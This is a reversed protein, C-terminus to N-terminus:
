TSAKQFALVVRKEDSNKIRSIELQVEWSPTSSFHKALGRDIQEFIFELNKFDMQYVCSVKERKMEPSTVKQCLDRLADNFKNFLSYLAGKKITILELGERSPISEYEEGLLELIIKQAELSTPANSNKTEAAPILAKLLRLTAEQTNQRLAALKQVEELEDIALRGITRELDKVELPNKIINLTEFQTIKAMVWEGTAAWQLGAVTGLYKKLLSELTNLDRPADMKEPYYVIGPHKLELLGFEDLPRWANASPTSLGTKQLVKRPEPYQIWLMERERRCLVIRHDIELFAWTWQNSKLEELVSVAEEILNIKQSVWPTARRSSEGLSFGEGADHNHLFDPPRM